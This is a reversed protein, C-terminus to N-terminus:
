SDSDVLSCYATAQAGSPERTRAPPASLRLRAQVILGVAFSPVLWMTRECHAGSPVLRWRAIVPSPDSTADEDSSRVTFTQSAAERLGRAARGCCVSQGVARANVSLLM